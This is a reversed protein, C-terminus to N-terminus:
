IRKDPHMLKHCPFCLLRVDEPLEHTFRRYTLHHLHIPGSSQGCEECRRGRAVIISHRFVLWKESKIYQEYHERPTQKLKAPKFFGLFEAATVTDLDSLRFAEARSKAQKAAKREKRRLWRPKQPGQPPEKSPQGMWSSSNRLPSVKRGTKTIIVM